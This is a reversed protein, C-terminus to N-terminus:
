SYMDIIHILYLCVTLFFVFYICFKLKNGSEETTTVEYKRYVRAACLIRMRWVFFLLSFVFYVCFKQKNGSEETTTVEYKRYVRAACLIRMRWAVERVRWLQHFSSFISSTPTSTYSHLNSHNSVLPSLKRDVYKVVTKYRTWVRIFLFYLKRWIYPFESPNPQLTM